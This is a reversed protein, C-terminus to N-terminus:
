DTTSISRLVDLLMVLALTDQKCYELLNSRLSKVEEQPLKGQLLQDFAIVAEGGDAVAMDAYSMGPVLAPLVKKLSFSGHFEPHYVHERVLKLLDWIRNLVADLRSEMGPIWMALEKLRSAEFSENYVIIHGDSQEVIDLLSSLFSERPDVQGDALFEYHIPENGPENVVHVSWQFPLFSYPRLGAYMPIAPNITEFDMFYLPYQLKSIETNIGNGYYPKGSGVVSCARSQRDSLSYDEPINHITNIGQSEMQAIKTSRIGPLRGIWDKPKVPNCVEYYPCSFPETCHKGPIVDPASDEKLTDWHARLQGPISHEIRQCEETLDVITFLENLDYKDGDYVYDRNLHMLCASSIEVGSQELVYKQIAVDAHLYEKASTTSKVEILRWSGDPQLEMVDALITIREFQFTAEYIAPITDDAILSKTLQASEQLHRHADEILVGGPFADRALEGVLTGQDFIMRTGADLPPALSPEFCDWYLRKLCQLGAMYKSKSLYPLYFSTL